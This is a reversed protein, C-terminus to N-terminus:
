PAAPTQLRYYRRTSNTSQSDQVTVLANTPPAPINTLSNWPNAPLADAFWVTYSKGAVAEFTLTVTENAANPPIVTEIKLSSSPDQPDTDALFEQLNTFGDGDPDLNADNVGVILGHALEWSDAMGDGDLDADSITLTAVQSTAWGDNNLVIVQYGGADAATVNTLTLVPGITNEILQSQNHWWQYALPAAGTADVSFVATGNLMVTQNTPSRTIIPPSSATRLNGTLAFDFSVDSSTLAQQHIEVAVINTGPVLFSTSLNTRDITNDPPAAGGNYNTALTAYTIVFPAPPMSDSRFVETGNLYVVGGDDRLLWMSLNTLSSLDSAVFTQRFYFTSIAAGSSNTSRIKTQEDNDNFGLQAVGNSWTTDNYTLPRWATGLDTGTDNYQWRSGASVLLVPGSNTASQGLFWAQALSTIEGRVPNKLLVELVQDNTAPWFPPINKLTEGPAFQLTGSAVPGDTGVVAYDVSVFNTTFSSLRVPVGNTIQVLGFRNTRLALGIGVPADPPTTMWHALRWGDRAPDWSLNSPFRPDPTSILNTGFHCQGVRDVWSNTDWTSGSASNWTKLFVDRYNYLVLSNTVNLYGTYSWTYNDGIRLGVSNATSLMREANCLPSNNGTSWGDEFGQGCNMLVTDYTWCQRSQGSWANAEHLSSEIWCNSVLMTGAGGSGSDLADDMAFGVLTNLILHTGETFYLADYDADAIVADVIGNDAPFEIFASHNIIVTGGGACEGGTIARQALCHDYTIDSAYGNHVQGATNIIACNTLSARAGSHILLVAQESKHSSGPSFDFSPGGGGGAFIAGNAFLQASTGRLLFGGWAGTRKEPWVINTATFVVPRDATGNIVLRGSNTINVLPNLKVITGAGITLSLSAPVTFHGTLYIRSNEPWNTSAALIGSVSTWATNSDINIQRPAQLSYLQANYAIPGASGGAPLFGSGLGRIVQVGYGAFGPANVEGNCRREGDQGDDVRVIVPIPLGPPYDQPTMVHLEAGAFEAATAYIRPYPTWKILGQEPSGRDSAVLIFRVLLNTVDFPSSLNTRWAWLDYYDMRTVTVATGVPVPAGNLTASFSYGAQTVVTFTATDNYVTKDAIGSVTIQAFTSQSAAGLAIVSAVVLSLWLSFRRVLVPQFM